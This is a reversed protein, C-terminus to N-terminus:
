FRIAAQLALGSSSDDGPLAWEKETFIAANLDVFLLKIGLGASLKGGNFGGRLAFIRFLRAEAGAHV